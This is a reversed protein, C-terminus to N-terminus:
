GGSIVYKQWSSDDPFDIIQNQENRQPYPYFYDDIHVGDIDYRRVVDMIVKLSYDQVEKEGPDLWLYKGYQKVLEPRTKSIHNASIPSTAKPHHARYPNFWAHLELSRKHAEQVAFALPDYDPEPAKGMEGTIFESWPEYPSAYLADCMPRVQFIVANLKLAVAKDLQAIIEAKQQDTTLGSKSPFDINVVTAIWVARFERTPTPPITNELKPLIDQSQVSPSSALLLFGCLFIAKINV